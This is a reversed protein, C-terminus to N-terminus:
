PECNLNNTTNYLENNDINLLLANPKILYRLKLKLKNYM